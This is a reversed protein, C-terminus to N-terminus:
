SFSWRYSPSIMNVFIGEDKLKNPDCKLFDSLEKLSRAKDEKELFEVIRDKM